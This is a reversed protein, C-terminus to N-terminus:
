LGKSSTFRLDAVSWLHIERRWNGTAIRTGTQDFAIACVPSELDVKAAKRDALRVVFLGGAKWTVASARGVGCALYDGAPSYAACRIGGGDTHIRSEVIGDAINLVDVYPGYVALRNSTPDFVFDRPDRELSTRFSRLTKDAVQVLYLTDSLLAVHRGDGSIALARIPDNVKALHHPEMAGVLRVLWVNGDEMGVAAATGDRSIAAVSGGILEDPLLQEPFGEAVPVTTLKLRADGSKILLKGTAEHVALLTSRADTLDTPTAGPEAVYHAGSGTNAVVGRGVCWLQFIRASHRLVTVGRPGLTIWVLFFIVLLSVIIAASSLATTRFQSNSNPQQNM